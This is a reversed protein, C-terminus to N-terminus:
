HNYDKLKELLSKMNDYNMAGVVKNIVQGKRVFLTTPIGTVMYRQAISPNEDVNLKVFIFEKKYEQQLKEFIPAFAMCPACWTAWFDIIIIKDYDKLLKDYEETSHIKIVHDPMAQLKMLMEAKKLRIKELEHDSKDSM